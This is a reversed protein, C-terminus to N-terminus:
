RPKKDPVVGASRVVNLVGAAFGLMFFVILGWPSTSLLQDIGWGIVAGVAVGAVLESSLRFGRAM